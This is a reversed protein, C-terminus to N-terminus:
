FSKRAKINKDVREDSRGGEREKRLRTGGFGRILTERVAEM